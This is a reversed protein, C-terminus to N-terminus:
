MHGAQKKATAAFGDAMKTTPSTKTSPESPSTAVSVLKSGGPTMEAVTMRAMHLAELTPPGTTPAQPATSAVATLIEMRVVAQPTLNTSDATAAPNKTTELSTAAKTSLIKDQCMEAPAATTTMPNSSKSCSSAPYVPGDKAVKARICSDASVRHSKKPGIKWLMRVNQVSQITAKQHPIPTVDKTKSHKLPHDLLYLDSNSIISGITLTQSPRSYSTKM